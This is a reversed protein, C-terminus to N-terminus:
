EKKSFWIRGKKVKVKVTCDGAWEYLGGTRLEVHIAATGKKKLVKVVGKKSVKVVKPNSSTYRLIGPSLYGEKRKDGPLRVESLIKLKIKKKKKVKIKVEEPYIQALDDIEYYKKKGNSVFTVPTMAVYSYRKKVYSDKVYKSNVSKLYSQKRIKTGKPFTNKGISTVTPPITVKRCPTDYFVHNSMWRLNKPLKIEKMSGCGRFVESEIGQLKDSNSFPFSPLSTCGFFARALLVKLGRGGQVNKLKTCNEFSSFWLNQVNEPIVVTELSTDQCSAAYTYEKNNSYTLKKLYKRGNYNGEAYTQTSPETYETDKKGYPYYLMDSVTKNFLVGNYVTMNPNEDAVQIQELSTFYNNLSPVLYYGMIDADIPSCTPNHDMERYTMGSPLCLSTIGTLPKAGDEERLHLCVVERGDITEPLILEKVGEPAQIATIQIKAREDVDNRYWYVVGDLEVREAAESYIDSGRAACAMEKPLVAGISLCVALCVIISIVKRYQRIMM